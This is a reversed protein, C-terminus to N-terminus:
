LHVEESTALPNKLNNGLIPLPREASDGYGINFRVKNLLVREFEKRLLHESGPGKSIVSTMINYYKKESFGTSEKMALSIFRHVTVLSGTILDHILYHSPLRTLTTFGGFFAEGKAPLKDLLRLDGHFDKLIMGSPFNNKLILVINQGHAVLGIGYETQLHLLPLLTVEFFAKLWEEFTKGSLRIYENILADGKDDQHFLAATLIAKEDSSIKGLASERFVSGLLEHYRYPAEKIKKLAPHEYVMGGKERLIRVNQLKEDSRCVDELKQSVAEGITVYRSPLGRICSTNLISLPLKIDMKHPRSVNSLTRISTQPRYLDGALGLPVIFGKSIEGVFQTEIYRDWQWPHVPMLDFNELSLDASALHKLFETHANKDFCEELLEAKFPASLEGKKVAIWFLQFPTASEPSYLSRHSATWGIRGKSLLIKPHGTLVTQLKEGGWLALEKVSLNQTEKKLHLDALLSNHMEEFFNGLTIDSMGTEKQIDLFFNSAEIEDSGNRTITEPKIKLSGWIGKIGAFEYRAGDSTTLTFHNDMDKVQIVEEYVLESISKAVLEHNIQYWLIRQNM